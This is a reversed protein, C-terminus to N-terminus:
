SRKRVQVGGPRQGAAVPGAAAGPRRPPSEAGSARRGGGQGVKVPRGIFGVVTRVLREIAHAVQPLPADDYMYAPTSVVRASEDVVIEDVPCPRVDAGMVAAHKAPPTGKAGLTLRVGAAPGLIRAALIPAICIFGMPKHARLLERLLRAVDPDVDCLAGREAYNSLVKAAGYGGPFVAADVSEASVESLPVIAGRALRAAEVLADRASGDPAGTRHDMTAVARSPAACQIAVRARELSLLTLVAERIESGDLHGSGSLVVLVRRRPGAQEPAAADGEDAGLQEPAGKGNAADAM